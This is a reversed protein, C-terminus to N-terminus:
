VYSANSSAASALLKDQNASMSFAGSAINFPAGFLLFMGFKGWGGYGKKAAYFIGGISAALGLGALVYSTTQKSQTTM